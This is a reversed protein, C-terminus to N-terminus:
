DRVRSRETELKPGGRIVIRDPPGFAIAERVTSARVAVQDAGLPLGMATRAARTVMDLADAPLVHATMIM